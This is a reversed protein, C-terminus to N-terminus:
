VKHEPRIRDKARNVHLAFALELHGLFVQYFNNKHELCLLSAWSLGQKYTFKFSKISKLMCVRSDFKTSASSLTDFGLSSAANSRINAVSTRSKSLYLHGGPPSGEQIVSFGNFVQTWVPWKATNGHGTTLTRKLRLRLLRWGLPLASTSFLKRNSLIENSEINKALRKNKEMRRASLRTTQFSTNSPSFSQWGPSMKMTWTSCNAADECRSFKSAGGLNRFRRLIEYMTKICSWTEPDM